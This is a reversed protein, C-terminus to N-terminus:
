GEGEGTANGARVISSTGDRAAIEGALSSIAAMLRETAVAAAERRPLGELDAVEIPPGFAISIRGRSLLRDTGAIAAPVLPVGATLAIRATGAHAKPIHKKRLGKRARTGEPFMGIIEGERLLQFATRMADADAEGRRVPFTGIARMAWGLWRNFLEAKAMYRIYRDPWLPLALLFPDLNSVHNSALVFGGEPLHEKGVWRTRRGFLAPIVIGAVRYLPPVTMGQM